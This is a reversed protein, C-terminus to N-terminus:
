DKKRHEADDWCGQELPMELEAAESCRVNHATQEIETGSNAERDTAAAYPAKYNCM